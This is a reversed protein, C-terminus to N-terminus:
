TQSGAPSTGPRTVTVGAPSPSGEPQVKSLNVGLVFSPDIPRGRVRVEFHLHPGTSHGTSGVLGITAGKAVRQGYKVSVQSLHGYWTQTYHTHELVVLKGYTGKLGAWVVRGEAAARVPHGHTSAIDIGEHPRGWRYGFGSSIPGFVPAALDLPVESSSQGPIKLELGPVLYDANRLGNIRALEAPTTNYMRALAWLTEGRQVRHVLSVKTGSSKGPAHSYELESQAQPTIPSVNGAPGPTADDVRALEYTEVTGPSSPAPNPVIVAVLEPSTSVALGAGFGACAAMLTYLLAVPLFRLGQRMQGQPYM